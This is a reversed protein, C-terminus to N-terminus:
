GSKKGVASVGRWLALRDGTAAILALFGILLWGM